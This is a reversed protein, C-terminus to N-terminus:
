DYIIARDASAKQAAAVLRRLFDGETQTADVFGVGVENMHRKVYKVTKEVFRPLEEQKLHYYKKLRLLVDSSPFLIEVRDLCSSAALKIEEQWTTGYFLVLASTKIKLGESKVAEALPLCDKIGYPMGIEIEPVNMSALMRVIQMKNELSLCVGPLEIGERLTSDRIIVTNKNM